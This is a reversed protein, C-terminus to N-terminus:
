FRPFPVTGPLLRLGCHSVCFGEPFRNALAPVKRWLRIVRRAYETGCCWKNLYSSVFRRNLRSTEMLFCFTFFTHSFTHPISIRFTPDLLTFGFMRRCESRGVRNLDGRAWWCIEIALHKVAPCPSPLSNGAKWPSTASGPQICM